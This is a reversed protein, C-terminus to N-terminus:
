PDTGAPKMLKMDSKLVDLALNMTLASEYHPSEFVDNVNM